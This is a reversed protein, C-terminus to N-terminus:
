KIKKFCSVGCPRIHITSSYTGVHYYNPNTHLSAVVASPGPLLVTDHYMLYGNISLFPSFNDTDLKVGENSHDGDIFIMDFKLNLSNVFEIAEASHSNGIFQKINKIDGIVEARLHQKEHQNDDLLVLNEFNFFYNFLYTNGGAAVGIEMWNKISPKDKMIDYLCGAIEDPIQLIHKGGEFKGGFVALSDSGFGEVITIIDQKTM